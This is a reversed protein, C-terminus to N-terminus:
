FRFYIFPNYTNSALSFISLLLILICYFNEPLSFKWKNQIEKKIIFRQIMGMGLFALLLIFLSYNNIYELASVSSNQYNWPLFMRLIYQFSLTTSETRFFVWGVNVIIFTYIWSIFKNRKLLQELGLRELINFFGHYIGWFLFSLDAGHWIGTLVFVIGLNIYTRLTGKKNGGLPIYVYEKFWSSLSIHWRHWFERISLSTYPYNFNENFDFGLMKGLGIAMDSYGSFDYYIQFTYMISTLWAMSCTVQNIDLTYLSDVCHALVNSILVKKALGYCFRRIGAATQNLSLTRHEIQENVDKYKIIPGAILQPFFSIYLGLKLPNRQVNCEKRFVDIVYSLAQFTFFSIGIPLSIDPATIESDLIMNVIDALMGAYKFYGLILLNAIVAFILILKKLSNFKSIGLGFGWNIFISFLMLFIYVPEGWAYFIISLLLLLLNTLSNNKLIKHFIFNGLLCIPLFVWLFIMSSFIM